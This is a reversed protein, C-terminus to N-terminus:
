VKLEKARALLQEPTSALRAAIDPAKFTDHLNGGMDDLFWAIHEPLDEWSRQEEVGLCLFLDVAQCNSDTRGEPTVLFQLVAIIAERTGALDCPRAILNAYLPSLLPKLTSSVNENGCHESYVQDFSKM